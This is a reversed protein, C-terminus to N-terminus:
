PPHGLKENKEGKGENNQFVNTFFTKLIWTALDQGLNISSHWQEFLLAPSYLPFM